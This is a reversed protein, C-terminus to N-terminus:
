FWWPMLVYKLNPDSSSFRLLGQADPGVGFRYYAASGGRVSVPVATGDQLPTFTLPYDNLVFANIYVEGFNWSPHGGWGRINTVAFDKLLAMPDRQFAFSLTGLGTTTSNTFRQWNGADSAFSVDMAYRLFAWTAGRTELADNADIPSHNAPDSLFYYFNVFNSADDSVWPAFHAWSDLISASTLHSRPSYGSERFFLLEEAEHSLGENLWTEEFDTAATNVYMRRGANILHQFEHALISTTLTDIYGPRFQNGNVVGTPDPVMMYFMEGENSTACVPFTPSQTRPFLDRAYFFGGVFTDSNPPTLENVARTFLIAVHGNNDIDSPADFNGVDIPYVLTDFRAAFRQYDARTFGNAPNTTDALIIAKTGVAEVRFTRVDPIACASTDVNLAILSDVAPVSTASSGLTYSPGRIRGVSGARAISRATRAPAFLRSLARSRTLLRDHFRVDLKRGSSRRDLTPVRAFSPRTRALSPETAIRNRAVRDLAVNTGTVSTQVSTTGDPSANFVMLAYNVGFSNPAPAICIVSDTVTVPALGVTVTPAVGGCNTQLPRITVGLSASQGGARIGVTGPGGVKLARVVGNAGFAPPPTVSLLTSDSLQFDLVANTIVNLYGDRVLVTFTASDGVAQLRMSGPTISVSFVPGPRVVIDVFAPEGVGTASALLRDARAAFGFTVTTRAIGSADTVTDTPAFSPGSGGLLTDVQSRFDVRVGSVPKGAADEVRVVFDGAASKVEGTTAPSTVIVVRAAKPTPPTPTTPTTKSEGSGGCAWTALLLVQAARSLRGLPSCLSFRHM